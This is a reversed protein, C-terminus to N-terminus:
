LRSSVGKGAAGIGVLVSATYFTWTYPQIFM